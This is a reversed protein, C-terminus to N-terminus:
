TSSPSLTSTTTAASSRGRAQADRGAEAVRGRLRRQGQHRAHLVQRVGGMRQGAVTRKRDRQRGCRDDGGSSGAAGAHGRSLRPQRLRARRHDHGGTRHGGCGTDLANTEGAPCLRRDRGHVRGGALPRRTAQRGRLSLASPRPGGGGGGDSDAASARDPAEPAAGPRHGGAGPARDRRRLHHERDRVATLRARPLRARVLGRGGSRSAAASHSSRPLGHECRGRQRVHRGCARRLEERRVPEGGRRPGRDGRRCRGPTGRRGHWPGRRSGGRAAAPRAGARLRRGGRQVRAAPCGRMARDAGRAPHEARPRAGRPRPRGRHGHARGGTGGQDLRAARLSLAARRRGAARRGGGRAAALGARRALQAMAM